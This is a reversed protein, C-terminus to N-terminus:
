MVTANLYWSSQMFEHSLIYSKNGRDSLNNMECFLDCIVKFYIQKTSMLKANVEIENLNCLLMILAGRSVQFHIPFEVQTVRGTGNKVYLFIFFSSLTFSGRVAM